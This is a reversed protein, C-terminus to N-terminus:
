SLHLVGDSARRQLSCHECGHQAERYLAGLRSGLLLDGLLQALPAPNLERCQTPSLMQAVTSGAEGRAPWAAEAEPQQRLPAPEVEEPPQEQHPPDCLPSQPTQM